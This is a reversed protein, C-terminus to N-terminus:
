RAARVGSRTVAVYLANVFAPGPSATTTCPAVIPLDLGGYRFLVQVPLNAFNRPGRARHKTM